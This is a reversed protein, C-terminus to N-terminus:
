DQAQRDYGEPKGSKKSKKPKPPMEQLVSWPEVLLAVKALFEPLPSRDQTVMRRLQSRAQQMEAETAM